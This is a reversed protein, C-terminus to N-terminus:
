GWPAAAARRPDGAPRRARARPGPPCLGRRPLQGLPALRRPVGVRHARAPAPRAGAGRRGPNRQALHRVRREAAGAPGIVLAQGAREPHWAVTLAAEFNTANKYVRLALYLNSLGPRDHAAVTGAGRADTRGIAHALATGAIWQQPEVELRLWDRKADDTPFTRAYLAFRPVEGDKAFSGRRSSSGLPLTIVVPNLAARVRLVGNEILM